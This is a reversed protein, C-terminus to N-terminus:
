LHPKIKLKGLTVIARRLCTGVDDTGEVVTVLNLVVHCQTFTHSLLWAAPPRAEM